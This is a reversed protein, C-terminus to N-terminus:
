LSLGVLYGAQYAEEYLNRDYKPADSYGSVNILMPNVYTLVRTGEAALEDVM